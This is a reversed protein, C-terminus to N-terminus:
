VINSYDVLTKFAKNEAHWTSLPTQFSYLEVVYLCPWRNDSWQPIPETERHNGLISEKKTTSGLATEGHNGLISEKKTASVWIAERYVEILYHM